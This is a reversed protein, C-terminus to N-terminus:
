APRAPPLFGRAAHCRRSSRRRLWAALWKLPLAPELALLMALPSVLLWLAPGWGLLPTWAQLPTLLLLLSGTALWALLVRKFWPVHM